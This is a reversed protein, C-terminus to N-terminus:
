WVSLPDGKEIVKGVNCWIREVERYHKSKREFDWYSQKPGEQYFM